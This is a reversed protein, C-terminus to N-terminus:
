KPAVIPLKQLIIPEFIDVSTNMPQPTAPAIAAPNLAGIAPTTNAVLAM